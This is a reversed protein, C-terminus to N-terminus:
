LEKSPSNLPALKRKKIREVLTTRNLGLLKAAQNKNNGTRELAQMILSNELHEIYSELNIGTEPLLEVPDLPNESTSWITRDPLEEIIPLTERPRSTAGAKLQRYEFPLSDLTITGGGSMVVLREILNQLERVNGPWPYRELCQFVEPTIYCPNHLCHQQNSLELFYDLLQRVDGKRDRLPPLTIPLVNLRYFLDLRFRQQAVAEELDVNTATIIRVDATKVENSGVPSFQKEQLVRLLKSQLRPPMEGIEDLFLTGGSAEEFYGKRNKDAGTFAGKVFGFLESELLTEPIASCNIALFRRSARLSLRHLAQAILEKGTGSEGHILVPSDSRAVKGITQLVKEMAESRGVIESLAQRWTGAPFPNDRDLIPSNLDSALSNDYLNRQNM